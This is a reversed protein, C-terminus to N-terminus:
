ARIVQTFVSLCRHSCHQQIRSGRLLLGHAVSLESAVSHYKKVEGRLQTKLPWGNKVFSIVQKCVEDEQQKAQIESLRKQTASLSQIVQRVFKTTEHELEHDEPRSDQIPARSLTDSITLNKGPVHSITYDYRMLRMRFRQIRITLEDLHKHSLLSILPKHNTHIHFKKGLLFHKFRECAWTVGLAEKEVQAYRQETPSLTRSAFLVPQWEETSQKQLLVSGLGYSSADAAVITERTPHYLALVRRSRIEAKIDEFAKQQNM